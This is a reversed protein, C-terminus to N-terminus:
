RKGDMQQLIAQVAAPYDRAQVEFTRFAGPNAPNPAIATLRIGGGPVPEQKQSMIGRSKLLAENPDVFGSPIASTQVIPAPTSYNWGPSPSNPDGALTAVAPDRPVPIVIPLTARGFPQDGIALPSSDPLTRNMSALYAPSTPSVTVANNTPRPAYAGPSGGTGTSASAPPTPGFKNNQPHIEGLIPDGSQKVPATSQCGASAFGLLLAM